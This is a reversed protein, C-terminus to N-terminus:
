LLHLRTFVTIAAFIMFVCTAIISRRSLRGIGCIGHGSTCGSGLHTGMGVLLGSTIILVLPADLKQPFFSDFVEAGMLGGIVLGFIFVIRWLFDNKIPTLIKALVGSVGLVKGNAILLLVAALGLILGGIIEQWPIIFNM